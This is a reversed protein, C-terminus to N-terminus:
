RKSIAPSPRLAALPRDKQEEAFSPLYFLALFIALASSLSKM